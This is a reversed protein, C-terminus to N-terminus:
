TSATPLILSLYTSFAGALRVGDADRIVWFEVSKEFRIGYRDRREIDKPAPPFLSFSLSFFDASSSFSFPEKTYGARISADSRTKETFAVREYLIM